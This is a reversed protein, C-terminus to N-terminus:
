WENDGAAYSQFSSRRKRLISMVKMIIIQVISVVTERVRGGCSMSCPM